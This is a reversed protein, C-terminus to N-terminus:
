VTMLEESRISLVYGNGASGETLSAGFARRFKKNMVSIHTRVSPLEPARSQRFAYKLIESPTAPCPYVRILYRLIMSETRTLEIPTGRYATFRTSVSADLEGLTYEGIPRQARRIRSDSIGSAVAPPYTSIPFSVDFEVGEGLAAVTVGYRERALRAMEEADEIGDTSCFLLVSYKKDLESFIEEPSVPYALLGMYYLMEAFAERRSPTTDTVLIM